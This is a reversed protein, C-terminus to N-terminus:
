YVPHVDESTVVGTWLVQTENRLIVNYDTNEVSLGSTYTVDIYWNGNSVGSYKVLVTGGLMSAPITERTWTIDTPINNGAENAKVIALDRAKDIDDLPIPSSPSCGLLMFVAVLNVVLLIISTKKLM